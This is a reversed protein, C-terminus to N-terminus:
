GEFIKEEISDDSGCMSNLYYILICVKKSIRYSPEVNM